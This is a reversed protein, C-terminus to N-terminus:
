WHTTRFQGKKPNRSFREPYEKFSEVVKKYPTLKKISRLRTQFNYRDQWRALDEELAEYSPYHIKFITIVGIQPNAIVQYLNPNIPQKEKRCSWDFNALSVVKKFHAFEDPKQFPPILFSAIM